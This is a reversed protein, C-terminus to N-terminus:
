FFGHEALWNATIVPEQPRVFLYRVYKGLLDTEINLYDGVGRRSLTTAQRTHPILSVMFSDGRLEAVTLSVGDLAVSGQPILLNELSAPPQIWIETAIDLSRQNLIVGTADVHGTVFHGGLRGGVPLARELNVDSGSMMRGLNTKQLTEAMVDMSFTTGTFATVTLCVGNVAISDGDQVNELVKQAEITLRVSQRGKVLNKLTGIEEVIGTFM